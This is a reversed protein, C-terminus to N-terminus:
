LCKELINLGIELVKKDVNLSPLIMFDTGNPALLLGKKLCRQMIEAAYATNSFTVGVSLGKIRIDAPYTFKMSKLRKEIYGSAVIVNSLLKRKNQIFYKITAISAVVSFPHWGFTSYFSFNFEFSKAVERTMITAGLPLHGGTIAKGLCMIDPKLHFHESAFMKGTRGFGTAVEDIIFITGYKKCANRVINFFIQDPIEVTLNCIIPESIFAAVDRKSLLKEVTMAAKQNLPPKIKYCHPLLNRYWERFHSLGISMAGISHGHYSGEISIFKHRKTHSM